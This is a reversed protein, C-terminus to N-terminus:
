DNGELYAESDAEPYVESDWATESYEDKENWAEGDFGDDEATQASNDYVDVSYDSVANNTSRSGASGSDSSKKAPAPTAKAGANILQPYVLVQTFRDVYTNTDQKVREYFVRCAFGYGIAGGSVVSCIEPSVEITSRDALGITIEAGVNLVTGDLFAGMVPVMVSGADQNPVTNLGETQGSVSGAGAATGNTQPPLATGGATGGTQPSAQTMEATGGTQVSAPAMGATGGTQLPLATGGATGDTQQPVSTMGATGGTQPSAPSIGAADASQQAQIAGSEAQGAKPLYTSNETSTSYVSPLSTMEGQSVGYVQTLWAVDEASLDANNPNTGDSETGSSTQASYSQASYSTEAMSLGAFAM